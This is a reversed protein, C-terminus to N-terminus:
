DEDGDISAPHEEDHGAPDETTDDDEGRGREDSM